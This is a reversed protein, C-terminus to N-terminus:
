SAISVTYGGADNTTSHYPIQHVTVDNAMTKMRTPLVQESTTPTVEYEDTYPIGGAIIGSTVTVGYSPSRATVMGVTSTITVTQGSHRIEVAM